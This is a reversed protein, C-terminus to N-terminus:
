DAFPGVWILCAFLERNENTDMLVIMLSYGIVLLNYNPTCYTITHAVLIQREVIQQAPM